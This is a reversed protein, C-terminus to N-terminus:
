IDSATDAATWEMNDSISKDDRGNGRSSSESHSRSAPRLFESTSEVISASSEDIRRMTSRRNSEDDISSSRGRRKDVELRFSDRLSGFDQSPRIAQMKTLFAAAEQDTSQWLAAALDKTELPPPTLRGDSMSSSRPTAAPGFMLEDIEPPNMRPASLIDRLRGELFDNKGIRVVSGNDDHLQRGSQRESQELMFEFLERLTVIREDLAEMYDPMNCADIPVDLFSTDCDLRSSRVVLRRTLRDVYDLACQAAEGRAGLTVTREDVLTQGHYTDAILRENASRIRRQLDWYATCADQLPM